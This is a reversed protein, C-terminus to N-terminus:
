ANSRGEAKAIAGAATARAFFRFREGEAECALIAKMAALMDAMVDADSEGFKFDDTVPEPAVNDFETEDFETVGDEKWDLSDKEDEAIERAEAANEAEVIAVYNVYADVCKTVVFKPM